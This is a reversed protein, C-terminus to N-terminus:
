IDTRIYRERVLDADDYVEYEWMITYDDLMRPQVKEGQKYKDCESIKCKRSEGEILIYQCIPIGSAHLKSRYICDKHKCHKAVTEVEQM